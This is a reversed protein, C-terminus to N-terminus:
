SVIESWGMEKAAGVALETKSEPTLRKVEENFATISQGEHRFYKMLAVAEGVTNGENNKFLKTM